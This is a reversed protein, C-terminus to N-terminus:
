GASSGSSLRWWSVMMLRTLTMDSSSMASFRTGCSPRKLSRRVPRDISKRTEIHIDSARRQIANFVISDVLRIIPSSEQQTISDITLTEEGDETEGVLQMRFGETAEDLVRQTSESKELKDRIAAPSAVKVKLPLGLLGELEDLKLVDTPDGVVVDIHGNERKEPLFQYRIMLELPINRFLEHDVVFHALEVYPFGYQDALRQARAAEGTPDANKYLSRPDTAM